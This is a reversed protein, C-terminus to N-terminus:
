RSFEAGRLYKCYFCALVSCKLNLKNYRTKRRFNAIHPKQAHFPTSAPRPLVVPLHGELSGVHRVALMQAAIEEYAHGHSGARAAEYGSRGLSRIM